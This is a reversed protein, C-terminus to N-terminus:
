VNKKRWLKLGQHLLHAGGRKLRAVWGYPLLCLTLTTRWGLHPGTTDAYAQTAYCTYWALLKAGSAPYRAVAANIHSLPTTGPSTTLGLALFRAELRRWALRPSSSFAWQWKRLWMILLALGWLLPTLGAKWNLENVKKFMNRQDDADYNSVWRNWHGNFTVTFFQLQGFWSKDKKKIKYDRESEIWGDEELREPAVWATPDLRVWHKHTPDWYESWAHAAAQPVTYMSTRPQYNGGQYGVVVRAYFGARRLMYTLASSYHECFGKHRDFLFTDLWDDQMEGPELSYTFQQSDMWQHAKLLFQEPTTVGAQLQRVLADTRPHINVPLLRDFRDPRTLLQNRFGAHGTYFLSEQPASVMVGFGDIHMSPDTYGDALIVSTSTELVSRFGESADQIFISYPTQEGIPLVSLPPMTKNNETWEKGNYSRLVMTRWYLDENPQPKSIAATFAMADSKALSGVSGPKMSKSMGVTGRKQAQSWMQGPRPMAYFCLLLVPLGLAVGQLSRKLLQRGSSFLGWLEMNAAVWIWFFALLYPVYWDPNESLFFGMPFFPLLMLTFGWHSADRSQLNRCAVLLALATVAKAPGDINNFTVLVGIIGLLGLVSVFLTSPPKNQTVTSHLRWLTLLVCMVGLWSQLHLVFPLIALVYAALSLYVARPLAPRAVTTVFRGERLM